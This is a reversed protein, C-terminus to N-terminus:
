KRSRGAKMSRLRKEAEKAYPYEREARRFGADHARSSPRYGQRLHLCEHYVVYDLVWEPVDESDLSSSVAVLRMAPSCYGVRTYNPRRTWSFMSARLDEGTVLGMDSLRDLSELLDREGGATVGTLNRSRSLYVPRNALAFAPSGVWERYLPGYAMRGGRIRGVVSSALEGAVDAPAPSLYDSVSLEVRDPLVGWSVGLERSRSLSVDFPLYGSSASVSSFM